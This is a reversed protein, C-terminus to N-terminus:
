KIACATVNASNMQNVTFTTHGYMSRAISVRCFVIASPRRGGLALARELEGAPGGVLLDALRALAGALHECASFRAACSISSAFFAALSSPLRSFVAAFASISCSIM